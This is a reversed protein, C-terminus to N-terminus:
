KATHHSHKGSLSADSAKETWSNSDLVNMKDQKWSKHKTYLKLTRFECVVCAAAPAQFFLSPFTGNTSMRKQRGLYVNVQSM